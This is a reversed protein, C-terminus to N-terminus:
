RSVTAPWWRAGLGILLLGLALLAGSEAEPVVPVGASGAPPMAPILASPSQFPNTPAAPPAGLLPATSGGPAPQGGPVVLGQAVVQGNVVVTVPAGQLPAGNLLQSCIAQGIANAVPCLIPAPPASVLPVNVTAQQGPPLGELAVTAATQLASPGPSFHAVGGVAGGTPQLLAGAFARPPPPLPQPGAMVTGQAVPQGGVVAAVASGPLPAAAVPQTCTVTGAPPAAPCVVQVEGGVVLTATQGAALGQLLCNATTAGTAGTFNCVGSVASGAVPLLVAGAPAALGPGAAGSVLTGQAVPQGGLTALVTAGASPTGAVVQSCTVQGSAGSAPCSLLFPGGPLPLSLAVAGGPPVGQLTATVATQGPVGSPAVVVSGTVLAGGLPQLTATLAAARDGATDQLVILGFPSGPSAVLFRGQTPLAIVEGPPTPLPLTALVAYTTGDIVVAENTGANAVLLHNTLPNVALGTPSGSVPITALVANTAGDLVTITNAGQNAVYVRGTTPNVALAGPRSGVPVTALVANTAGDLVSVTNGTAGANSVYIRNLTPNLAVDRPGAGVAVTAVIMNTDGDVVSVTGASSNAVYLR